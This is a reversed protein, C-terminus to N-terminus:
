RIIDGKEENDAFFYPAISHSPHVVKLQFPLCDYESLWCLEFKCRSVLADKDKRDFGMSLSSVASIRPKALACIGHEQRSQNSQLFQFKRAGLFVPVARQVDTLYPAPNSGTLSEKGIQAGIRTM